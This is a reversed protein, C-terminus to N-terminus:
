GSDLEALARRMEAAMEPQFDDFIPDFALLRMEKETFGLYDLGRIRSRMTVQELIRICQPIEEEPFDRIDRIPMMDSVAPQQHGTDPTQNNAAPPQSSDAEKRSFQERVMGENESTIDASGSVVPERDGAGPVQDSEQDRFGSDQVSGQDGAGPVQCRYQDGAGPVQDSGQIRFGSDQFSFARARQFAMPADHEHTSKTWSKGSFALGHIVPDYDENESYLRHDYNHIKVETARLREMLHFYRYEMDLLADDVAQHENIYETLAKDIKNFHVATMTYLNATNLQALEPFIHKKQELAYKQLCSGGLYKIGKELQALNKLYDPSHRNFKVALEFVCTVKSFLKACVNNFGAPDDLYEDIVEFPLATDADTQVPTNESLYKDAEVILLEGNTQAM